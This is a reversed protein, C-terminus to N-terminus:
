WAYDQSGTLGTLIVAVIRLQPASSDIVWMNPNIKLLIGLLLLIRYAIGAVGFSQSVPNAM